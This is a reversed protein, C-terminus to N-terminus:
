LISVIQIKINLDRGAYPHNFDVEIKDAFVSLIQGELCEGNELNFEILEGPQPEAKFDIADMTVVREPDVCGFAEDAALLKIDLQAGVKEGLMALELQVPWQGTGMQYKVPEGQASAELVKDHHSITYNIRLSGDNAILKAM